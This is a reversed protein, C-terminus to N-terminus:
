RLSAQLAAARPQTKPTLHRRLEALVAANGNLRERVIQSRYSEVRDLFRELAPTSVEDFALWEGTRENALLHGHILQEPNNPEPLAFVPKGLYLAEGLLQNGATTILAYSTALDEVFRREDIAFFRVKGRSPQAGWGYARVERGTGALAEILRESGFKRVYVVLHAGHEARAELVQPRLLPGVELAREMGPRLGPFCFSSVITAAQGRYYLGVLAGMRAARRRLPAPLRSLDSAVLFHQHDLSVFPVGSRQAARPLAPEFDTLVLDPREREIERQLRAILQPLRSLYGLVGRTTRWPSLTNRATYEFQLGPIRTVRVGSGAYLPALMEYADGPAFIVFRHESRLHEVITRVRTAHGRGEGALSYFITAM